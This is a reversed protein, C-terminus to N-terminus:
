IREKFAAKDKWQYKICIDSGKIQITHIHIWMCVAGWSEKRIKKYWYM